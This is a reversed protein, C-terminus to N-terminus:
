LSYVLGALNGEEKLVCMSKHYVVTAAPHACVHGPQEQGLFTDSMPLHGEARSQAGPLQGPSVVLEKGAPKQIPQCIPCLLM